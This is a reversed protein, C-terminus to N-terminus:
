MNAILSLCFNSFDHAEQLMGSIPKRAEEWRSVGVRMQEIGVKQNRNVKDQRM